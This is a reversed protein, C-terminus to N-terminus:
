VGYFYQNSLTNTCSEGEGPDVFTEPTDADSSEGDDSQGIAQLYEVYTPEELEFM